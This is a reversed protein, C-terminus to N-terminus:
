ERGPIHYPALNVAGAANGEFKTHWASSTTGTIAKAAAHLEADLWTALTPIAQTGLATHTAVHGEEHKQVHLVLSKWKALEDSPAKNQETVPWELPGDGALRNNIGGDVHFKVAVPQGAIWPSPFTHACVVSGLEAAEPITKLHQNITVRPYVTFLKPKSTALLTADYDAPVLKEAFADIKQTVTAGVASPCTLTYFLEFDGGTVKLTHTKPCNKGKSTLTATITVSSDPYKEYLKDKVGYTASGNVTIATVDFACGPTVTIKKGYSHGDILVEYDRPKTLAMTSASVALKWPASDDKCHYTLPLCTLDAASGDKVPKITLVHAADTHITKNKSNPTITLVGDTGADLTLTNAITFKCGVTGATPMDWTLDPQAGGDGAGGTRKWTGTFFGKHAGAGTKDVTGNFGMAKPFPAIKVGPGWKILTSSVVKGALVVGGDPVTVKARETLISQNNALLGLDKLPESYNAASVLSTLLALLCLTRALCSRATM